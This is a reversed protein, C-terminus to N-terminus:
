TTGRGRSTRDPIATRHARGEGPKQRLSLSDAPGFRVRGGLLRNGTGVAATRSQRSRSQSGAHSKRVTGHTRRIESKPDRRDRHAKGSEVSTPYGNSDAQPDLREDGPDM